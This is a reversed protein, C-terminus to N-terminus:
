QRTTRLCRAHIGYINELDVDRQYLPYRKNEFLESRPISSEPSDFRGLDTPMHAIQSLQDITLGTSGEKNFGFNSIDPAVYREPTDLIPSALGVNPLGSEDINKPASGLLENNFIPM